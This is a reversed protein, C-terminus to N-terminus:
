GLSMFIAVFCVGLGIVAVGELLFLPLQFAQVIDKSAQPQRAISEVAAATFKGIGYGAGVTIVGAGLAAGLMVLGLHSGPAAAGEGQALAAGPLLLTLATLLLLLSGASKAFHTM